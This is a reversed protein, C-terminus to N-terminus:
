RPISFIQELGPKYTGDGNSIGWDSSTGYSGGWDWTFFFAEIGTTVIKKRRALLDARYQTATLGSAPYPTDYNWESIFMKSAFSLSLFYDLTAEFSVETDYMNFGLLDLSGTGGSDWGLVTGQATSYVIEMDPYSAKLSAALTRVDTQVNAETVGGANIEGLLAWWDEENGVYFRDIGNDSAWLAEGPVAAKWGNYDSLSIGTGASTVGYSVFFGMNKAILAMARANAVGTADNWSPITMRIRRTYRGLYQLDRTITETSSLNHDGFNIGMRAYPRAVVNVLGRMIQVVGTTTSTAYLVPKSVTANTYPPSTTLAGATADSLYYTSGATLGSLTIPGTTILEFTNTTVSSVVGTVYATTPDDAKAKVWTSGDHRLANGVSFGHSAQTVNVTGSEGAPGQAGTAGTPGDAGVAGTPGTPGAAGTSISSTVTSGEVVNSTVSGGTTLNTTITASDAM